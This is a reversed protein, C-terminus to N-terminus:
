LVNEILNRQMERKRSIYDYRVKNTNRVDVPTFVFELEDLPVKTVIGDDKYVLHNLVNEYSIMGIANEQGFVYYDALKPLTRGASNGLWNKLKIEKTKEKRRGSPSFMGQSIFKFELKKGTITDLHDVGIEDVWKLRGNSYVELCQEIIDAKDFRNKRENLQDGLSCILKSYRSYNLSNRLDEAYQKTNM